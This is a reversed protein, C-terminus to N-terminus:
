GVKRRRSMAADVMAAANTEPTESTAQAANATVWADVASRRALWKKGVKIAGDIAGSAGLEANGRQTRGTAWETHPIRPDPDIGALAERVERSVLVRIASVLHTVIADDAALIDKRM